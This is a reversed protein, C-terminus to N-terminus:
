PLVRFFDLTELLTQELSVRPEWGTQEILKTADGSACPIDSARLRAPDTMVELPVRSMNVLTELVDRIRVAHGKAINFVSRTPLESSKMILLIYAEIVDRVDILERKADLNGVSIIPEQEGREIRAIQAAFSPVVFREDQGPGIHNFPRVTLLRTERSLIDTFAAEGAAKSRAYVSLPRLPTTESAAGDLFSSGYVESSSVNLITAGSAYKAIAEALFITGAANTAWTIGEANSSAGVSSQAALHLVLDPRLEEVLRATAARDTLDVTVSFPSPM